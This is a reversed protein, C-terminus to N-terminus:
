SDSTGSCIIVMKRVFSKTVYKTVLFYSILVSVSMECNSDCVRLNQLSNEKERLEAEIRTVDRQVVAHKIAQRIKKASLESYQQCCCLM